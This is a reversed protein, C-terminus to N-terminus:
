NIFGDLKAQQFENWNNFGTVKKFRRKVSNDTLNIEKGAKVMVGNNRELLDIVDVNAWTSKALKMAEVINYKTHSHKSACSKSCYSRRIDSISKGCQKCTATVEKLKAESFTTVLIKDDHLGDHVERHCNSCLVVCKRLEKEIKSWKISGHGLDAIRFDKEDPNIHHFDLARRCKNYGCIVCEEGMIHYIKDWVRDRWSSWNEYYDRRM